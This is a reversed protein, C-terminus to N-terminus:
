LFMFQINKKVNNHIDGKMGSAYPKRQIYM